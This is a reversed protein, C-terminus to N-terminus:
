LRVETHNKYNIGGRPSSELYGYLHEISLGKILLQRVYLYIFLNSSGGDNYFMGDNNIM